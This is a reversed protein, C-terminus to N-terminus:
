SEVDPFHVWSPLETADLTREDRSWKEEEEEDLGMGMSVRRKEQQQLFELARSLRFIKSGTNRRWFFFIALGILLWSVSFEFYGLAYVPFILVFARAFRVWTRAVRGASSSSSPSPPSSTPADQASPDGTIETDRHPHPHPRLPPLPTETITSTSSSIKPAADHAGPAGNRSM